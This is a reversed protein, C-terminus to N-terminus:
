ESARRTRDELVAQEILALAEEFTDALELREKPMFLNRMRFFSQVILGGGVLVHLRENSRTQSSASKIASFSSKPLQMLGHIITVIYVYDPAVADVDKYMAEVMSWFEDLGWRGSFELLYIRKTEDYWRYVIPM